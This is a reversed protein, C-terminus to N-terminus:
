QRLMNRRRFETPTMGTKESFVITMRGSTGFGSRKAIAGMLFDTEILLRKAQEIRANQIEELVTRGLLKKFKRELKRRSLSITETVTAVNLHEAIHHRIFEVAASVDPDDIAVIDTSQRTVIKTPPLIIPEEPPTRGHMIQDLLRAAEYGIKERPMQVSSLPPRSLLCELEDNDVGLIALDDPVRYGALRCLDTLQRAPVDNSALIAAPKDLHALWDLVMQDTLAWSMAASPRPLFEAYCSRVEYGAEELKERFGAERLKSFGTWDSGFYGFRTFGRDLFHAAAMQGIRRDDAIVLPFRASPLTNTVSVIPTKWRRLNALLTKDYLHVIIGHPNWEKLSDVVSVEPEADRFVWSPRDISYAHVGRLVGRCFGINQGMLLAIRQVERM